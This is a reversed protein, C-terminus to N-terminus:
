KAELIMYFSPYKGTENTCNYYAFNNVLDAFTWCDSTTEVETRNVTYGSTWIGDPSMNCAILTVTQGGEYAKQAVRKSVRVRGDLTKYANM